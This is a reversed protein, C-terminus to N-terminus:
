WNKWHERIQLEWSIFSWLKMPFFCMKVNSLLWQKRHDERLWVVIFVTAYVCVGQTQWDGWSATIYHHAAYCRSSQFLATVHLDCGLGHCSRYSVQQQCSGWVGSCVVAFTSFEIVVNVSQCYRKVKNTLDVVIHDKATVTEKFLAIEDKLSSCEKRSQRCLLLM